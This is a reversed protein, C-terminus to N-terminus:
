GAYRLRGEHRTIVFPLAARLEERAQLFGEGAAQINGSAPSVKKAFSSLTLLGGDSAFVAQELSIYWYNSDAPQRGDVGCVLVYDAGAQRSLSIIDESRYSNFDLGSSMVVYSPLARKYENTIFRKIDPVYEHKAIGPATQVWVAVLPQDPVIHKEPLKKAAGAAAAADEAKYFDSVSRDFYLAMDHQSDNVRPSVSYKRNVGFQKYGGFFTQLSGPVPDLTNTVRTLKLRNGYANAMAENGIAPAGFTIVEFREAPLGLDLLRQGLLTAAAGGLSHGTIILYTDPSEAAYRFVGRLTGGDVVSSQLVQQVYANFGEHVAPVTKDVKTQAAIEEMEALTSGGYAVRSTKLNVNWDKKSASGRFTVLYIHKKIDRFYNRAIIFYPEVKGDSLFTREIKWGNGRLFDFEVANDAKYIGMCSAAATQIFYADVYEQKVASINAEAAAAAASLPVGALCLCFACFIIRLRFLVIKMSM